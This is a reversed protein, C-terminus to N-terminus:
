EVLHDCHSAVVGNLDLVLLTLESRHLRGMGLPDHVQHERVREKRLLVLTSLLAGNCGRLLADEVLVFQGEVRLSM